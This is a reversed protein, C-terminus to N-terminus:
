PTDANDLSQRYDDASMLADLESVNDPQLRYLWGKGYPAENILEPHDTLDDNRAVVSGSIPAFVDAAAKVSEIVVAADGAKFATGIDPLEVYVVDGLESQAHQTIGIAVTGDDALLCWEHTHRYRLEDPFNM